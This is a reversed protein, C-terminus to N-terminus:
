KRKWLLKGARQRHLYNFDPKSRNRPAFVTTAEWWRRGLDFVAYVGTQPDARIYRRTIAWDEYGPFGDLEKTRLGLWVEDPDIIAEAFLPAYIDRGRKHLKWSGDRARFLEESIPIRTGARDEWLVSKGLTAGFPELFARVYDESPLGEALPQALFPRSKQLLDPMPEPIDISVLDRGGAGGLGGTNGPDDLLRSPVLGREWHDGPMYDWGYGVGEPLQVTEGSAKHTYPRRKLAPAQDPGQKGMRALDRRSLGHVGCSCAWDNPPFHTDWWPDDWMLVLGDWSLHSPRPSMPVRTDAHRYMWYPQIKVLDPDRLQKLRGAMYSTRINTEFITRIRWERGGNYDWGYKEVIRDFEAAFAGSDYTRAGEVIAAQFEELMAIDTAGAVVFARDHTGHMADTWARTPRARKQTLFDIQERFEQRIVDPGAFRTGDAEALVLERGELAALELASGLLTGLADPTWAAALDLLGTLAADQFAEATGANAAAAVVARVAAIRRTFHRQAAAM